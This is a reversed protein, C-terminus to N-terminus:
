VPATLSNVRVQRAGGGFEFSAHQMEGGGNSPVLGCHVTLSDANAASEGDQQGRGNSSYWAWLGLPLRVLAGEAIEDRDGSNGESRCAPRLTATLVVPLMHTVLNSM